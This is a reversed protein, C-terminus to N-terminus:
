ALEDWFGLPSWAYNTGRFHIRIDEAKVGAKLQAAIAEQLQERLELGSVPIGRLGCSLTEGAGDRRDVVPSDSEGAGTDPAAHTQEYM